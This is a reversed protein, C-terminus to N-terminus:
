PTEQPTSPSAPHPPTTFPSSSPSASPTASLTASPSPMPSPSPQPTPPPQLKAFPTPAGREVRTAVGWRAKVVRHVHAPDVRDALGAERILRQVHAHMDPIQRYVDRGVELYIASGQVALKAPQYVIRVSAGKELSDFLAEVHESRMRVCGHTSFRGISSPANTGHIGYGWASLGIWRTGLPNEPGAKVKTLVEKGDRRMEEQISRPVNWVPNKRKEVVKFSGIPTRWRAPDSADEDNPEGLAVPYLTIGTPEYRYLLGDPINVVIAAGQSPPPIHRDSLHIKQGARLPNRTSLGNISLLRRLDLGNRNAIRSLTDTPQITYVWERGLTPPAATQALAPLGGLAGSLPVSFSSSALLLGVALLVKRKSLIPM